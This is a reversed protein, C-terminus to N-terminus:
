FDKSVNHIEHGTLPVPVLVAPMLDADDGSSNRKVAFAVDPCYLHSRASSMSNLLNWKPRMRHRLHNLHGAKQLTSSMKRRLDSRWCSYGPLQSKEQDVLRKTREVVIPTEATPLCFVM